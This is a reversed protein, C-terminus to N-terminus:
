FGRVSIGGRKRAFQEQLLSWAAGKTLGATNTVGFKWLTAIQKESAPDGRWPADKRVLPEVKQNRVWDEAVGLAYALPLERDALSVTGGESNLVIRYGAISEKRVWIDRRDGVPLHWADGVQIWAFASRGFFDIEQVDSAVFIGDFVEAHCAEEEAPEKPKKEKRELNPSIIGELSNEFNCLGLRSADVFDM